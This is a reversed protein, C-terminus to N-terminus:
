DDIEVETNNITVVGRNTESRISEVLSICEDKSNTISVGTLSRSLPSYIVKEIEKLFSKISREEKDGCIILYYSSSFYNAWYRSSVIANIGPHFVVIKNVIKNKNEKAEKLTWFSFYDGDRFSFSPASFRMRMKENVEPKKRSFISPMTKSQSSLTASKAFRSKTEMLKRRM